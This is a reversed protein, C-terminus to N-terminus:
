PAPSRRQQPQHATAPEFTTGPSELGVVGLVKDSLGQPVSLDGAPAIAQEGGYRYLRLTVGFAKQAAGVDGSLAVYRRQAGVGKVRLGSGTLWSKVANVDAETPGFRAGYEEPTIFQGYQPSSPDSVADVLANLQANNRPKLYVRADVHRSDPAKAVENSSNAWVPASDALSARDGEQTTEAQAQAKFGLVAAVVALVVALALTGLRQADVM